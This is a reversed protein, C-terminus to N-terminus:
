ADGTLVVGHFHEVKIIGDIDEPLLQTDSDQSSSFVSHVDQDTDPVILPLSPGVDDETYGTILHTIHPLVTDHDTDHDTHHHSEPNICVDVIDEPIGPMLEQRKANPDSETLPSLDDKSRKLKDSRTPPRLQLDSQRLEFEGKQALRCRRAKFWNKVRQPPVNIQDSIAKIDERSPYANSKFVQELQIVQENSFKAAAESRYSFQGKQALSERRHKFWRSVQEASVGELEAAIAQKKKRDPYQDDGWFYELKEKQRQTPRWRSKRPTKPVRVPPVRDHHTHYDPPLSTSIQLFDQHLQAAVVDSIPVGGLLTQYPYIYQIQLNIPLNYSINQVTTPSPSPSPSSFYVEQTHQQQSQPFLPALEPSHIGPLHLSDQIEQEDDQKISNDLYVVDDEGSGVQVYM